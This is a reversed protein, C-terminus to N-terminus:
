ARTVSTKVNSDIITFHEKWGFESYATGQTIYLVLVVCLLVM